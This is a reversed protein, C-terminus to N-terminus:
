RGSVRAERGGPHCLLRQIGHLGEELRGWLRWCLSNVVEGGRPPVSSPPPIAHPSTLINHTNRHLHIEIQRAGNAHVCVYWPSEHGCTISPCGVHLARTSLTTGAYFGRM